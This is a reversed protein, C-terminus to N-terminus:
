QRTLFEVRPILADNVMGIGTYGWRNMVGSLQSGAVSEVTFRDAIDAAHTNLYILADAHEKFMLLYTSVPRDSAETAGSRDRATLYQGDMKSRVLYYTQSAIM